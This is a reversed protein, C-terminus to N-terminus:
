RFLHRRSPQLIRLLDPLIYDKYDEASWSVQEVVSFWLYNLNQFTVKYKPQNNSDFM